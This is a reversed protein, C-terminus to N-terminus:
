RINNSEKTLRLLLRSYNQGVSVRMPRQNFKHSTLKMRQLSDIAVSILESREQESHEFTKLNSLISEIWCEYSTSIVYKDGDSEDTISVSKNFQLSANSVDNISYLFAGYHRHYESKLAPCLHKGNIAKNWYKDAMSTYLLKDYCDAMLRNQASTLKYRGISEIELLIHKMQLQINSIKSLIASSDKGNDSMSPNQLETMAAAREQFLDFLRAMYDCVRNKTAIRINVITFSVSAILTVLLIVTQIAIASIDYM